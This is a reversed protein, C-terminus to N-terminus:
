DLHFAELIEKNATSKQLQGLPQGGATMGITIIYCVKRWFAM